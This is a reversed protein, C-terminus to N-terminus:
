DLKYVLSREKLFNIINENIKVKTNGSSMQVWTKTEPDFILFKLDSNGKNDTFIVDMENMLEPTIDNIKLKIALSGIEMEDLLKIQKTKFELENPNNFRHDVKGVIFLKYGVEMFKKLEIYQKSFLAIKFTGSFDEITMTGWPNGTKTFRHEVSNVIGAIKVEKGVFNSLNTLDALKTNTNAEVVHQNNSLPHDSIYVGVFEKEKNLIQLDTWTYKAPPPEPKKIKIEFDGDGFLSLQNTDNDSQMKNGYKLLIDIFIQKESNEKFFDERKFEGMISDFGGSYVLAEIARKNVTSVNVREVFDYIDKFEGNATREEIIANVPGEGLGRVAELGFRIKGKKTVTFKNFSENVDPGLVEIKHQKTDDLFISIKSIDSYNRTLLAALFEKPYHTKLYGTQYALYAYCTSHSKNFAYEAFAEWDSWIKEAKEKSINNEACGSIFLPKLQDILKKKKKGMAKRLTDAQGRTFNALKRSLQMVQEQYVTVGYTDALYEEMEPIFYEIKKRGHKRDIFDGIYEMPGPRYLANMAILDEFKTPKLNKLHKKMGPSEFQFIGTTDGKGFLEFVKEDDLPIADIDIDKGTTSKINKLAEMIISLTKLGLFDMKLLGIDEVFKGDYQTVFLKADKATMLPVYNDLSDRGIITGCAHVGTQRVSGDLTKVFDLMQGIIGSKNDVIEKFDPSKDIAKKFTNAKKDITKAIRDAEPLPINLVRSVDRIAMKPAMTGLTVIHAVKTEGYKQAVWNLVKERGDDDFDIDIDPMSIRDPNLFREFLLGYAIPDIDTIRLCYAIASGAASGRGPGVSVGMKRAENILDWVILFYSPFGMQNITALEFDIREKIEDTITEWRENAGKYTLHRLYDEDNKFEKPIEFIPMIPASNIEYKEVKQAIEVSTALAEPYEPFLSAMEEPSKFYEQGTYKMRTPDEYDKGTNLTILIDHPAADEKNLFHVDNTAVYKIDLKKAIEVIKKNVVLQKESVDQRPNFDIVPHHMIELYYDDKFISKYWLAVEEAKEYEEKMILQAIEGGLCASSVILGESHQELIEKDIRPRYYYGDIWARSILKMLNKYGTHNKALLIIHYNNKEGKVSKKLKRSEPAIYAECGIIPKIDNASCIDHFKKAGLMNGHDTLAVSDMGYEKVKDILDPIKTAGDLISYQTHLHLHVFKQM